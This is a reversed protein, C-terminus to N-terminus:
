NQENNEIINNIKDAMSVIEEALDLVNRLGRTEFQSLGESCDSDYLQNVADQMDRSTNEYRCYSM